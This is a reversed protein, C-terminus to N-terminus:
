HVGAPLPRTVSQATTGVVDLESIRVPAYSSPMGSYSFATRPLYVALPQEAFNGDYAVIARRAPSSGLADAVGRWDPRQDIWNADVRVGAWVFSGLLVVGLIAGAVRARSATCAAGLVVALPAWASIFNRVYVYDHGVAVLAVPVLIVAAALAGARAAGRRERAGGGVWLLVLVIAILVIAGGIGNILVSNDSLTSFAFQVPIQRVRTMLPIAAIWGLPHGTDAIALPLVAVQVVAVAACAWVCAASRLRWLLWAAEPALLFIAFFHTLVALASFVAWLALDRGGRTREARATYLFSLAGLLAFLMYSRAEQSYWIMFPSVAALAAAVVGARRSVLERGCLYLVPVLAVGCLASLSRIGTEGSGFIRTWVWALAFYLPPTTENLRIEHLM